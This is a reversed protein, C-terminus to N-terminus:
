TVESSSRAATRSTRRSYRPVSGGALVSTWTWASTRGPAIISISTTAAGCARYDDGAPGGAVAPGVIRAMAAFPVSSRVRPARRLGSKRRRKRTRSALWNASPSKWTESIAETTKEGSLCLVVIPSNLAVRTM